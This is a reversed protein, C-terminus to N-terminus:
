VVSVSRLSKEIAQYHSRTINIYTEKSIALVIEEIKAIIEEETIKKGGKNILHKFWLRKIHAWCTEIPNLESSYPPTYVLSHVRMEALYKIKKTHHYRLNDMVITSYEDSLKELLETFFEKFTANTNSEELMKFHVM